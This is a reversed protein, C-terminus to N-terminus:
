TQGQCAEESDLELWARKATCLVVKGFIRNERSKWAVKRGVLRGTKSVSKVNRVPNHMRQAKSNQTRGPPKSNNRTDISDYVRVM